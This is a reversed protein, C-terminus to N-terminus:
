VIRGSLWAQVTIISGNRPEAEVYKFDAVVDIEGGLTEILFWYFKEGTLANTKLAFEKVEGSFKGIPRAASLDETKEAGEVAFLGTPVFSKSAFKIEDEQGDYFQQEDDYIKLDNSAFATLKIEVTQPLQLEPIARFDPVDFVFPYEGSEPNTEDSPNAWAYFGGDLDSSEREIKQTLAVTRRSKGAFHPNFGILEQDLNGQLWIEAGSRDSFKLYFGRPPCRVESAHNLVSMLMENIEEDGRVPFGIDSLNSM